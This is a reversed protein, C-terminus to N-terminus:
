HNGSYDGCGFNEAAERNDVSTIIRGSTERINKEKERKIGEGTLFGFHM